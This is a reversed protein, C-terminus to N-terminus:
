KGGKKLLNLQISYYKEAFWWDKFLRGRIKTYEYKKQNSLSSFISWWNKSFNSVTPLKDPSIYGRSIAGLCETLFDRDKQPLKYFISELKMLELWALDFLESSVLAIDIDSSKNYPRGLSENSLSIGLKASGVVEINQTHLNFHEALARKLESILIEDGSFCIPNNRFIYKNVVESVTKNGLEGKLIDLDM